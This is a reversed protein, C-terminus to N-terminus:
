TKSTLHSSSPEQLLSGAFPLEQEYLPANHIVIQEIREPSFVQPPIEGRSLQRRLVRQHRPNNPNLNRPPTDHTNNVAPAEQLVIIPHQNRTDETPPPQEITASETNTNNVVQNQNILNNTSDSGSQLVAINSSNADNEPTETKYNKRKSYYENSITVFNCGWMISWMWGLLFIVTTFLQLLAIWTNMWVANVKDTHKQRIPSGCLVTLGALFTGLGPVLINCILCIYAVPKRLAPISDKLNYGGDDHQQQTESTKHVTVAPQTPNKYGPMIPKSYGRFMRPSRPTRPSGFPSRNQHDRPSLNRPHLRPSPMPSTGRNNGGVRPSAYVVQM